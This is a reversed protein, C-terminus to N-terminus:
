PDNGKGKWDRLAWFAKQSMVMVETGKSDRLVVPSGPDNEDLLEATLPGPDPLPPPFPEDSM